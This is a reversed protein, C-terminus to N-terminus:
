LTVFGAWVAVPLSVFGACLLIAFGLALRHRLPDLDSGAMGLSQFMSSVGHSLHVVLATNAIVYFLAVYWVQFSSVVNDYYVDPRHVLGEPMAVGATLHMLHYVIYVGVIPGTWRMTRAAYTTVADRKMHYRTPRADISRKTIVFSTAVHLVFALVLVGRVGWLQAPSEKLGAYYADFAERGVFIHLNSYLHLLLFVLWAGGSVALVTKLFLSTSFSRARISAQM